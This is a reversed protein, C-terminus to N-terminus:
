TRPQILSRIEEATPFRGTEKKSFILKGDARVEFIGRDGQVLEIALGPV